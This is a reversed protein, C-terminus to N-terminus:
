GKTGVQRKFTVVTNDGKKTEASTANALEPFFNAMQERIQETTMAPDPDPYEKNEYVFIRAM